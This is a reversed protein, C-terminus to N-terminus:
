TDPRETKVELPSGDAAALMRRRPTLEIFEELSGKNMRSPAGILELKKWVRLGDSMALM